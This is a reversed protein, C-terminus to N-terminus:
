PIHPNTRPLLACALSGALLAKVIDWFVFPIVALSFTEYLGTGMFASFQLAGFFYIVGVGALMLLPLTLPRLRRRAAMRESMLGILLAAPVFGIIYGGTVGLLAASGASFGSFWPVGAYGMGLYFSMSLAGYGGGLLAGCLLVAFVQGTVPVPTGPLHLRLQAALGTLAAVALALGIRSLVPLSDRRSFVKTRFMAYRDLADTLVHM